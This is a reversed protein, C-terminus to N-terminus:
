FWGKVLFIKSDNKKSKHKPRKQQKQTQKKQENKFHAFGIGSSSLLGQLYIVYDDNSTFIFSKSTATIAKEGDDLANDISEEYDQLSLEEVAKLVKKFPTNKDNYSNIVHAVLYTDDNLMEAIQYYKDIVNM